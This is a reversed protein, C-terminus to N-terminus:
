FVSDVGVIIGHEIRLKKTHLKKKWQISKFIEQKLHYFLSTKCNRLDHCSSFPDVDLYNTQKTTNLAVKFLTETIDHPDTKNTSAFPPGM